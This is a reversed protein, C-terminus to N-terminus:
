RKRSKSCWRCPLETVFALSLNHTASITMWEEEEDEEGECLVPEITAPTLDM